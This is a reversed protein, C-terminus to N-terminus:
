ADVPLAPMLRYFRARYAKKLADMQATSLDLLAISALEAAERESAEKDALRKAEEAERKKRDAELQLKRAEEADEKAYLRGESVYREVALLAAGKSKHTDETRYIAGLMGGISGDYDVRYVRWAQGWGARIGVFGLLKGHVYVPYASRLDYSRLWTPERVADGLRLHPKGALAGKALKASCKTCDVREPKNTMNWPGGERGCLATRREYPRGDYASTVTEIKILLCTRTAM